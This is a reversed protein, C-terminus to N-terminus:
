KMKRKVIRMALLLILVVVVTFVTGIQISTYWPPALTFAYLDSRQRYDIYQYISTGFFVGVVCLIATRLIQYLKKM